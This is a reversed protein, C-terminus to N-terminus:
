VCNFKRLLLVVVVVVMVVVVVVMVVVGGSSGGGGGGSRGERGRPFWIFLFSSDCGRERERERM